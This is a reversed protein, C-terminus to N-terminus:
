KMKAKGLTETQYLVGQLVVECLPLPQLLTQFTDGRVLTNGLLHFHSAEQDVSVIDACVSQELLIQVYVQVCKEIHALHIEKM